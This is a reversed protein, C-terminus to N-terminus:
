PALNKHNDYGACAPYGTRRSTRSQVSVGRLVPDDAKASSSPGIPILHGAVLEGDFIVARRKGAPLDLVIGQGHLARQLRRHLRNAALINTHMPGPAGVGAHM